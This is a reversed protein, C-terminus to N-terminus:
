EEIRFARVLSIVDPDSSLEPALDFLTHHAGYDEALQLCLSQCAEQRKGLRFLCAIRAYDLQPSRQQSIASDLIDLAEVLSGNQLLFSAYQLWYGSQEPALELARHLCMEAQAIFGQQYYAEALAVYYEERENQLDVAVELHYVAEELREQLFLLCGLRFHAEDHGPDLALAERLTKRALEHDGHKEYAEGLRTLLEPDRTEAKDLATLLCDVARDTQGLQLRMEAQDRWAPENDENIICAYEFAEAAQEYRELCAQAHGYNYWIQWSYPDRDIIEEYFTISEEYNGIMETSLWMRELAEPFRTNFRVAKELCQHMVRWADRQEEILSQFYWADARDERTGQNLCPALIREAEPARGLEILTEVQLFLVELEGPAMRAAQELVALAEEARDLELMVTAQSCRLEISYPHQRLAEVSLDLANSWRGGSMCTDILELFTQEELYGANGEELRSEFDSTWDAM